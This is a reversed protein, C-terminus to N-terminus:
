PLNGQWDLKAGGVVETSLLHVEKHYIEVSGVVGDKASWSEGLEQGHRM